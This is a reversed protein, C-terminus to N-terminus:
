NYAVVKLGTVKDPPVIVKVRNSNESFVAESNIYRYARVRYYYVGGAEVDADTYSLATTTKLAKWKKETLVYRFIRYGRANDVKTWSLSVGDDSIDASLKKVAEIDAASVWVVSSMLMLLAMMLALARASIQKM